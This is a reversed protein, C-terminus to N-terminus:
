HVTAGANSSEGGDQQEVLHRRQLARAILWCLSAWAAGAAWGALVDTPWHVGLYVRSIGVLLTIVVAIILVYAKLLPEHHVRGLIAALTLYTVAAMMSHGSPFSATYVVTDHPVLDPRARDFGMKLLSSLLMGGSVALLTFLSARNRGALLLYGLVALTILTLVGMSGLATFDRGMEEVWGPGIPDSLDAPNRLSLLVAEDISAYEGETVEDALEVFAWAGASLVVASLLVPFEHSGLWALAAFIGNVLRQGPKGAAPNM